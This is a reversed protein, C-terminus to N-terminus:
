TTQIFYITVVCMFVIDDESITLLLIYKFFINKITLIFIRM